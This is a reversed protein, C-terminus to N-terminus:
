RTTSTGHWTPPLISQGGLSPLTGRGSPCGGTERDRQGAARACSDWRRAFGRCATDRLNACGPPGRGAQPGTCLNYGCSARFFGCVWPGRGPSQGRAWGMRATCQHCPLEAQAPGVCGQFSCVGPLRQEGPPLRSMEPLEEGQTKCSLGHCRPSRHRHEGPVKEVLHECVLAHWPSSSPNGLAADGPAAAGCARCGGRAGARSRGEFALQICQPIGQRPMAVPSQRPTGPCPDGARTGYPYAGKGAEPAAPDGSRDVEGESPGWRQGGKFERIWKGNRRTKAPRGGGGQATQPKDFGVLRGVSGVLSGTGPKAEEPMKTAVSQSPVFLPAAASPPQVASSSSRSLRPAPALDPPEHCPLSPAVEWGGGAAVSEGTCGFARSAAAHLCVSRHRSSSRLRPWM